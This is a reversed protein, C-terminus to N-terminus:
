INVMVNLAVIAIWWSVDQIDLDTAAAMFAVIAIGKIIPLWM